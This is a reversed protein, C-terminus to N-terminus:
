FSASVSLAELGSSIAGGSYNIKSIGLTAIGATAPSKLIGSLTFTRSIGSPISYASFTDGPMMSPSAVESSITSSASVNIVGNVRSVADVFLSPYKSVSVDNNNTNTLTFTFNANRGIVRGTVDVPSGNSLVASMNSVNVGVQVFTTSNSTINSAGSLNLNNDSAISSAILTSSASVNSYGPNVDATLVLDAWQDAALSVAMNTFTVANGVPANAGYTQGGVALRINKLASAPSIGAINFGVNKIVPSSNQSKIGFVGLVVNPTVQSSSVTVIRSSPSNPSLRTTIVATPTPITGIIKLGFGKEIQNNKADYVSVSYQGPVLAPSVSRFLM